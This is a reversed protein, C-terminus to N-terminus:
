EEASDEAMETDEPELKAEVDSTDEKDSGIKMEKDSFGEFESEEAAKKVKAWQEESEYENDFQNYYDEADSDDEVEEECEDDKRAPIVRASNDDEEFDVDANL